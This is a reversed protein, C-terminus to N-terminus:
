EREKVSVPGNVTSLHVNQRGSGLEIRRASVYDEDDDRDSWSRRAAACAEGRCSFPGHGNSEVVVGSQYGRPIRLALPGNSTSADLTGDWATGDLRVAVPGNEARLTMTGSGGSLSVPGNVSAADVTGTTKAISLPGNQVRAVVHGDVHSLAVQGNHASLDLVANRPARVIFFAVSDNDSGTASVENGRVTAHIAALNESLAAAKCLTVAYRNSDWGTVHIGGNRDSRVALSTLNGVPVEEEARVAVSGGYRVSIQACSTIEDNDDTSITLNARDGNRYHAGHPVAFTTAAVAITLLPLLLNRM